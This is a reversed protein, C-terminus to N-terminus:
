LGLIRANQDRRYAADVAEDVRRKFNECGYIGLRDACTKCLPADCNVCYGGSQAWDKKKVIGYCHACGVLDAEEVGGQDSARNDSILYGSGEFRSHKM